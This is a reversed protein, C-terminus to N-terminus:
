HFEGVTVTGSCCRFFVSLTDRTSQFAIIGAWAMREAAFRYAAKPNIGKKCAAPKALTLGDLNLADV